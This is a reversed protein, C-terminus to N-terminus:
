KSPKSFEAILEAFAEPALNQYSKLRGRLTEQYHQKKRARIDDALERLLMFPRKQQALDPQEALLQDVADPLIGLQRGYGAENQIIDSELEWDGAKYEGSFPLDWFTQPSVDVDGSFPYRFNFLPWLWFM